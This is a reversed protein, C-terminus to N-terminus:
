RGGGGRPAIVEADTCFRRLAAAAERVGDADMGDITEAITGGSFLRKSLSDADARIAEPWEDYFTMARWWEAAAERLVTRDDGGGGELRRRAKRLHELGSM